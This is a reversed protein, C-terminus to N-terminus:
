GGQMQIGNLSNGDDVLFRVVAEAAVESDDEGEEGIQAVFGAIRQDGWGAKEGCYLVLERNVFADFEFHGQYTLVRGPYYLGQISCLPTSGINMWPTPLSSSVVVQDGHFLQVRMMGNELGKLAKGPVTELFASDLLIPSIGIEYGAACRQVAAVEVEKEDGIMRQQNNKPYHRSLLAQAIMQHGFCSGVWKVAPYRTWVTQVFEQLQRVWPVKDLEYTSALSGTILIADIPSFAEEKEDTNVHVNEKRKNTNKRLTAFAPFSGGPVDYSSTQITIGEAKSDNDTLRAAASQLLRRFQSSYLGRAAYVTPVPVDTDLIALHIRM